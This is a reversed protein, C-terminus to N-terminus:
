GLQKMTLKLAPDDDDPDPTPIPIIAPMAAPEATITKSNAIINYRFHLLFGYTSSGGCTSEETTIFLLTGGDDHFFPV